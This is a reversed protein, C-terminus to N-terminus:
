NCERNIYVWGTYTLNILGNIILNVGIMLAMMLRRKKMKRFAALSEVYNCERWHPGELKITANINLQQSSLRNPLQTKLVDATHVPFVMAMSALIVLNPFTDRHHTSIISWLVPLSKTPYHQSRVLSKLM